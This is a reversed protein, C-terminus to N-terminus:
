ILGSGLFAVTRALFCSVFMLAFISYINTFSAQEVEAMVIVEYM